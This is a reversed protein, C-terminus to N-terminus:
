GLAKLAEQVAGESIDCTLSYVPVRDMLQECLTAAQEVSERFPLKRTEGLIRAFVEAGRIPELRNEKGRELLVVAALPVQRNTNLETKGSWPSGCAYVADDRDFRLVPTDDNICVTGPVYQRWLGTHTSKGTGSLASFAIAKGDVATCSSHFVMRQAGLALQSFAHGAYYFDRVDEPNDELSLISIDGRKQAFTMSAGVVEPMATLRNYITNPQGEALFWNSGPIANRIGEMDPLEPRQVISIGYHCRHEGESGLPLMYEATRQKFYEGAGHVQLVLGAIEYFM